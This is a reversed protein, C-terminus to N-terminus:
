QGTPSRSHVTSLTPSHDGHFRTQISEINATFHLDTM